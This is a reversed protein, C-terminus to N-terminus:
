IKHNSIFNNYDEKSEPEFINLSGAFTRYIYFTGFESTWDSEGKDFYGYVINNNINSEFNNYDDEPSVFLFTYTPKIEDNNSNKLYRIIVHYVFVDNTKEFNEVSKSILNLEEIDQELLDLRFENGFLGSVHRQQHQKMSDIVDSELNLRELRKIAEKKLPM